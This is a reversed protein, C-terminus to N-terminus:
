RTTAEIARAVRGLQAHSAWASAGHHIQPTDFKLAPRGGDLVLSPGQPWGALVMTQPSLDLYRNVFGAFELIVAWVLPTEGGAHEVVIADDNLEDATVLWETALCSGDLGFGEAYRLHWRPGEWGLTLGDCSVLETVLHVGMLNRLLTEPAAQRPTPAFVVGAQIRQVVPGGHEFPPSASLALVTAPKVHFERHRAAWEDPAVITPGPAVIALPAFPRDLRVEGRSLAPRSDRTWSRDRHDYVVPQLLEGDDAVLVSEGTALTASAVRM